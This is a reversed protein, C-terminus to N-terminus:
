MSRERQVRFHVLVFSAFCGTGFSDMPGVPGSCCWLKIAVSPEGDRNRFSLSCASSRERRCPVVPRKERCMRRSKAGTHADGARKKVQIPTKTHAFAHCCTQLARTLPSVLILDPEWAGM